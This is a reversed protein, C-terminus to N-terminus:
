YVGGQFLVGGKYKLIKAAAGFVAMDSIFDGGKYKLIELVSAARRVSSLMGYVDFRSCFEQRTGGAPGGARRRGAAGGVAM